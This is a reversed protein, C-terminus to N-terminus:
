GDTLKGWRQKTKGQYQKWSGEISDWNMASELEIGQAM